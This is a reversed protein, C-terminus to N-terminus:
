SVPVWRLHIAVEGSLESQELHRADRSAWLDTLGELKLFSKMLAGHGDLVDTRRIPSPVWAKVEFRQLTRNWRGISRYGLYSVRGLGESDESVYPLSGLIKEICSFMYQSTRWYGKLYFSNATSVWSIVQSAQRRNQPRLRRIYTPTVDVGDYADIGCSERFKGTVFTKSHNVKCNYKQLHDLITDAYAVPVIIDDGYVHVLGDLQSVSSQTVPLDMERLLAVVCITYFYMAEIPFCLASGMSAFKNLPGIITGDPLEANRSRCADIADRLDPNSDFMSLALDRPVRDSADALDITALRGDSSSTMALSQNISQDRFNVHGSSPWHSEIIEYLSDRIGQQTYQM